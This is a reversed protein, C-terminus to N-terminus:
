RVLPNKEHSAFKAM